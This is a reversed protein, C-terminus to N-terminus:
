LARLVLHVSPPHIQPCKKKTCSEKEGFIGRIRILIECGRNNNSCHSFKADTSNEESFHIYLAILVNNESQFSFM